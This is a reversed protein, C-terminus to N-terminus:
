SHKRKQMRAARIISVGEVSYVIAALLSFVCGVYIFLLGLPAATANLGPLWTASTLELGDLVPIGLLSGCFGLMLLATAIKGVYVVDVPRKRYRRVVCAGLALYADRGILLAAVWVPLEASVVLGLVGAFLLARDCIPDLVKGFWSVTQTRRALQGDIWDTGAAIAYIGISLMRNVNTVFLVLFVATLALRAMTIANAFTFVENSPNLSSGVPADVDPEFGQRVKSELWQRM